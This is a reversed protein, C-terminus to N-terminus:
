CVFELSDTKKPNEPKAAAFALASGLYLFIVSLLILQRKMFEM